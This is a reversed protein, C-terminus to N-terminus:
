KHSIIINSLWESLRLYDYTEPDGLTSHELTVTWPDGDYLGDQKGIDFVTPNECNFRAIM